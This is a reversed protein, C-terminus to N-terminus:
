APNPGAQPVLSPLVLHLSRNRRMLKFLDSLRVNEYLVKDEVLCPVRKVAALQKVAHPKRFLRSGRVHYKIIM